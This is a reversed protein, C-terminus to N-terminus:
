STSTHLCHPPSNVCYVDKLGEPNCSEALHHVCMSVRFFFRSRAVARGRTPALCLMVAAM